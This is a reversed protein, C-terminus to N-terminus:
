VFVSHDIPGNPVVYGYRTNSPEPGNKEYEAKMMAFRDGKIDLM